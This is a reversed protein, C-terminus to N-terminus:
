ACKELAQTNYCTLNPKDLMKKIKETAPNRRSEAGVSEPPGICNAIETQTFLRSKKM